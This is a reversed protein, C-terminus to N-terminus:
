NANSVCQWSSVPVWCCLALMLAALWVPLSVDKNAVADDLLRRQLELPIPALPLLALTMGIVVVQRKKSYWFIYRYVTQLMARM